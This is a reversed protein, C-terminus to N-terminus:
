VDSQVQPGYLHSLVSRPAKGPRFGKVHAKKALNLYAKDVETKVTDAPIEIQLELIVPSIRSVTVQM